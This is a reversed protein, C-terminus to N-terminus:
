SQNGLKKTTNVNTKRVILVIKKVQLCKFIRHLACKVYINSFQKIKVAFYDRFYGNDLFYRKHTNIDFIFDKVLLPHRDLM